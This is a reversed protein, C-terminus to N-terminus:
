KKGGNRKDLWEMVEDLDFRVITGYKKYPMGEKRWNIITGRTVNFYEMLEKTTLLRDLM